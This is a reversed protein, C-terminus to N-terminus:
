NVVANLMKTNFKQQHPHMKEVLSVKHCSSHQPIFKKKFCVKTSLITFFPGLSILNAILLFWTIVINIM